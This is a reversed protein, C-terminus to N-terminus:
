LGDLADAVAQRAEPYPKLADLLIGRLRLWEPDVLVNYPPRESSKQSLQTLALRYERREGPNEGTLARPRMSEVLEALPDGGSSPVLGAPLTTNLHARHRNISDHGLGLAKGIARASQGDALLNNIDAVRSDQCISCRQSM